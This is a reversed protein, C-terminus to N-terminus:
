RAVVEVRCAVAEPAPLGRSEPPLLCASVGGRAM